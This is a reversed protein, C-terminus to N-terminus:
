YTHIDKLSRKNLAFYECVILFFFLMLCESVCSIATTHIFVSHFLIHNTHQKQMNIFILLIVRRYCPILSKRNNQKRHESAESDSSVCVGMCMSHWEQEWFPCKRFNISRDKASRLLLSFSHLLSSIIRQAAKKERKNENTEILHFSILM